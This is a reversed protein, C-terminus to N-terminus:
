SRREDKRHRNAILNRLAEVPVATRALVVPPGAPTARARELVAFVHREVRTREPQEGDWVLQVGLPGGARVAEVLDPLRAAGRETVRMVVVAGAVGQAGLAELRKRTRLHVVPLDGPLAAALVARADNVATEVAAALDRALRPDRISVVIPAGRAGQEGRADRADRIVIAEPAGSM